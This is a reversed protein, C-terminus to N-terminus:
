SKLWDWFEAPMANEVKDLTRVNVTAVCGMLPVRLIEKPKWDVRLYPIGTQKSTHISKVKGWASIDMEQTDVLMKKLILIDGPEIDFFKDVQAQSEVYTFDCYSDRIWMEDLANEVRGGPCYGMFIYEAMSPPIETRAITDLLAQALEGKKPDGLHTLLNRKM